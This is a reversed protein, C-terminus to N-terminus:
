VDIEGNRHLQGSLKPIDPEASVFSIWSSPVLSKSTYILTSLMSVIVLSMAHLWQWVM